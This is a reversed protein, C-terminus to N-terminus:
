LSNKLSGYGTRVVTPDLRAFMRTSISTTAASRVSLAQREPRRKRNNDDALVGSCSRTDRPSGRTLPLEGCAIVRIIRLGDVREGDHDGRRSRSAAERRHPQSCRAPGSRGCCTAAERLRVALERDIAGFFRQEEAAGVVSSSAKTLKAVAPIPSADLGFPNLQASSQSIPPPSIM